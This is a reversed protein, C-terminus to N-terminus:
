LIFYPLIITYYDFFGEISSKEMKWCNFTKKLSARRSRRVIARNIKNMECVRLNSIKLAMKREKNGRLEKFFSAELNPFQYKRNM